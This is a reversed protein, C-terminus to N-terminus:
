SDDGRVECEAKNCICFPHGAPDKMVTFGRNEVLISAGISVARAVEADRDDTHLDFHMQQGREQTPWTPLQYNEVEQFWIELGGNFLRICDGDPEVGLLQGYFRALAHPDPCDIAVSDFKLNVM